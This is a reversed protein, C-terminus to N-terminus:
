INQPCFSFIKNPWSTPMQSRLTRRFSSVSTGALISCFSICFSLEPVLVARPGSFPSGPVPLPTRSRLPDRLGWHGESPGFLPTQWFHVSMSAFHISPALVARNPIGFIPQPHRFHHEAAFHIDAVGTDKPIVFCLNRGFILSFRYLIFARPWFRATRPGSFRSHAGFTAYPWSTPM